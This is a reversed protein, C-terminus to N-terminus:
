DGPEETTGGAAEIAVGEAQRTVGGVQEVDTAAVPRRGHGVAQTHGTTTQERRTTVGDTVGGTRLRDLTVKALGRDNFHIDLPILTMGERGIAM